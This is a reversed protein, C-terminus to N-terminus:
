DPRKLGRQETEHGRSGTKHSFSKLIECYSSDLDRPADKLIDSERQELSDLTTLLEDVIDPAREKRKLGGCGEDELRM